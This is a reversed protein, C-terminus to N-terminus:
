SAQPGGSASFANSIRTNTTDQSDANTWLSTHSKPDKGIDAGSIDVKAQYVHAGQGDLADYTVRDGKSYSALNSWTPASSSSTTGSLASGYGGVEQAWDATDTQPDGASGLVNNKAKYM